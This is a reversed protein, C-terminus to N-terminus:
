VHQTVHAHMHAHTCICSLMCVVDWREHASAGDILWKEFDPSTTAILVKVDTTQLQAHGGTDDSAAQSQQEEIRKLMDDIIAPTNEGDARLKDYLDSMWFAAFREGTDPYVQLEGEAFAM